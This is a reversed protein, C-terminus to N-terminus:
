SWNAEERIRSLWCSQIDGCWTKRELIRRQNGKEKLFTVDRVLRCHVKLRVVYQGDRPWFLAAILGYRDDVLRM